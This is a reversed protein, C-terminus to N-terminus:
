DVSHAPKSNPLYHHNISIPKELTPSM